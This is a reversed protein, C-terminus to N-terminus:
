RGPLDFGILFGLVLLSGLVFALLKLDPALAALWAGPWSAAAANPQRPPRAPVVTAM